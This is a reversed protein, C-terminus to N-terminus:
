EEDSESAGKKKPKGKVANKPRRMRQKVIYDDKIKRHRKNLRFYVGCANCVRDGHTDRRWMPTVTTKCNACKHPSADSKPELPLPNTQEVDTLHITDSPAAFLQPQSASLLFLQARLQELQQIQAQCLPVGASLVPMSLPHLLRLASPRPASDESFQGLSCSFASDMAPFPFEWPSTDTLSFETGVPSYLPQMSDFDTSDTSSFEHTSELDSSCPSFLDTSGTSIFQDM